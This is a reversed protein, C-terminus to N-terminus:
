SRNGELWATMQDQSDSWSTELANHFADVIRAAEAQDATSFPLLAGFGNLCFGGTWRGFDLRVGSEGEAYVVPTLVLGDGLPLAPVQFSVTTGNGLKVTNRLVDVSIGGPRQQVFHSHLQLFNTM